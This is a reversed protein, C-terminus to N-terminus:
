SNLRAAVVAFSRLHQGPAAGSFGLTLPGFIACFNQILILINNARGFLNSSRVGLNTTQLNAPRVGLGGDHAWNITESIAAACDSSLVVKGLFL